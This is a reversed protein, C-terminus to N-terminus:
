LELFYTGDNELLRHTSLTFWDPLTVEAEILDFEDRSWDPYGIYTDVDVTFTNNGNDRLPEQSVYDVTLDSKRRVFYAM